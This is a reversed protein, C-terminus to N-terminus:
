NHGQVDGNIVKAATTTAFEMLVSYAVSGCREAIRKIRMASLQTQPVDKAINNVDEEITKKEEDNLEGFEAFYQIAAVIKRETWPYPKGCNSCYSPLDPLRTSIIGADLLWGPIRTSCSPCAKITKSGCKPCYDVCFDPCENCGGNIQHGNECVQQVDYRDSM